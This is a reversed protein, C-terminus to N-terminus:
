NDTKMDQYFHNIFKEYGYTILLDGPLLAVHPNTVVWTDLDQSSM